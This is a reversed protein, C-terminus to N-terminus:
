EQETGDVVQNIIVSLGGIASSVIRPEGGRRGEVAYLRRLFPRLNIDLLCPTDLNTSANIINLKCWSDFEKWADYEAIM